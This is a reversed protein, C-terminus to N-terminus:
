RTKRILWTVYVGMLLYVVTISFVVQYGFCSLGFTRGVAEFYDRVIGAIPTATLQPLVLAQHWISIDRAADAQSPLIDLVIAFEVSLFPGYGIGFIGSIFFAGAFKRRLLNVSRTFIMLVCATIM